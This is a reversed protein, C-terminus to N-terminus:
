FAARFLAYFNLKGLTIEMHPEWIARLAQLGSETGAKRCPIVMGRVACNGARSYSGVRVQQPLLLGAKGTALRPVRDRNPM